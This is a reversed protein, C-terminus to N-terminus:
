EIFHRFGGQTELYDRESDVLCYTNFLPILIFRARKPFEDKM